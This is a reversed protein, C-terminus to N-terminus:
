LLWLTSLSWPQNIFGLFSIASSSIWWVNNGTGEDNTSIKGDFAPSAKMVGWKDALVTWQSGYPDVGTYEKATVITKGLGQNNISV